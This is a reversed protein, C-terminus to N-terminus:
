AGLPALPAMNEGFPSGRLGGTTPVKSHKTNSHLTHQPLYHTPKPFRLGSRTAGFAVPLDRVHINQYDSHMSLTDLLPRMDAEIFNFKKQFQSKIFCKTIFYLIHTGYM